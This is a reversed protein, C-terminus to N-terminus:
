ETWDILWIKKEIRINSYYKEYYRWYLFLNYIFNLSFLFLAILIFAMYVDILCM